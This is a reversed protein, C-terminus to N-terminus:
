RVTGNLIEQTLRSAVTTICGPFTDMLRVVRPVCMVLVISSIVNTVVGTREVRILNIWQGLRAQFDLRKSACKNQIRYNQATKYM